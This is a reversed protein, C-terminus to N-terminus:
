WFDPLLLNWRLSLPSPLHGKQHYVLAESVHTPQRTGRESRGLSSHNSSVSQNDRRSAHGPVGNSRSAMQIHKPPGTVLAKVIHPALKHVVLVGITARGILRSTRFKHSSFRSVVRKDMWLRYSCPNCRYTCRSYTRWVM